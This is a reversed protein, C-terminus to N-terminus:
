PDKYIRSDRSFTPGCTATDAAARLFIRRVGPMVDHSIAIERSNLTYYLLRKLYRLYRSIEEGSYLGDVRRYFLRVRLYIRYLGSYARSGEARGREGSCRGREEDGETHIYIYRHIRVQTYIYILCRGSAIPLISRRAPTVGLFPLVM